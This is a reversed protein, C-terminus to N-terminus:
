SGKYYFLKTARLHLEELLETSSNLATLLQKPFHKKVEM